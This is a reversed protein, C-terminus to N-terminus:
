FISNKNCLLSSPSATSVRKVPGEEEGGGPARRERALEHTSHSASLSDNDGRCASFIRWGPRSLPCEIMERRDCAEAPRVGPDRGGAAVAAFLLRAVEELAKAAAARTKRIAATVHVREHGGAFRADVVSARAATLLPIVHVSHLLSELSGHFHRARTIVATCVIPAPRADASVDVQDVEFICVM